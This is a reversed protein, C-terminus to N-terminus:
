SAFLSEAWARVVAPSWPWSARMHSSLATGAIRWTVEMNETWRGLDVGVRLFLTNSLRVGSIACGLGCASEPLHVSTVPTASRDARRALAFACRPPVHEVVEGRGVM